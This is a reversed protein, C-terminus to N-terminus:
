KGFVKSLVSKMTDDVRDMAAKGTKFAKASTDGEREVLERQKFSRRLVETKESDDDGRKRKKEEISKHMKSREVNQIYTKNERNAQAIEARLRQERAQREYAIQETLHTWKFKPLYKINWVDHYYHSKRKGGIQKMNLYTSLTKARKKDKFEVWGEVYNTRRNKGYKKRRATIKPDEPQLYIRGIEAYESLLAKVRMPKMFPPIRPLYCVGMKKQEKEFKELEEPTLPKIKKKKKSVTKSDTGDKKEASIEEANEEESEGSEDGFIDDNGDDSIDDDSDLDSEDDPQVKKTRSRMTKFRSDEIEAEEQSSHEDSDDAGLGFLDQKEKDDAM